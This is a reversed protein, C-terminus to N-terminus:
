VEWMVNNIERERQKRFAGGIECEEIVDIYYYKTLLILSWIGCYIMIQRRWAVSRGKLGFINRKKAV